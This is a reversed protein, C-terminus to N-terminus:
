AVFTDQVLDEAIHEDDVSSIVYNFLYDSYNEFLTAIRKSDNNKQETM